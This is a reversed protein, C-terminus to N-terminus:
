TTEREHVPFEKPFPSYKTGQVLALVLCQAQIILMMVDDDGDDASYDFYSVALCHVLCKSNLRM